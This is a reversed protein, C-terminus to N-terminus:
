VVYRAKRLAQVTESDDGLRAERIKNEISTEWSMWESYSGFYHPGQEDQLLSVSKTTCLWVGRRNWYGKGRLKHCLRLEESTPVPKASLASARKEMREKQLEQFYVIPVLFKLIDRSIWRTLGEMDLSQHFDTDLNTSKRPYALSFYAPREPVMGNLRSYNYRFVDSDKSLTQDLTACFVPRLEFIDGINGLAKHIINDELLITDEFM